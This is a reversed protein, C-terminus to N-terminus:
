ASAKSARLDDIIRQASGEGGNDRDYGWPDFSDGTLDVKLPRGRLYDFYLEKNRRGALEGFIRKSDDGEAIAARADDVTFGGPRAQLVGMGQPASRNYLAALVLAKDLGEINVAESRM